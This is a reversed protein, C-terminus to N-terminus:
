NNNEAYDNLTFPKGHGPYITHINKTKLLEVSNYAAAEDDPIWIQPKNMNGLLDGCFLNGDSTLFGISGSSHGPLELVEADFGYEALTDGAKIYFDPTFQDADRLHFFLGVFLKMLINPPNRNWYMDGKEVMGSDNNHMAIPAQYTKRLYAANGGHDFDGHTLIILKLKDPTCGADQLAQELTQRHGKGTDILVFGDDIQVLYCNVKFNLIVPLTITTIKATM